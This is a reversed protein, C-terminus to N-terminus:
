PVNWSFLFFLDEVFVCYTAQVELKHELTRRGAGGEGKEREGLGASLHERQRLLVAHEENLDQHQARLHNLETTLGETQRLQVRLGELEASLSETQHLQVRLGELEEALREERSEKQQLAEELLVKESVYGDLLGSSVNHVPGFSHINPACLLM